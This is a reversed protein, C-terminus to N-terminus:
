ALQAPSPLQEGDRRLNEVADGIQDLVPVAGDTAVFQNGSDPPAGIDGIDLKAIEHALNTPRQVVVALTLFEDPRNRAEPEM